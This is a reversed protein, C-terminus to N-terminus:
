MNKQFFPSAIGKEHFVEIAIHQQSIGPALKFLRKIKGNEICTKQTQQNQAVSVNYNIYLGNTERELNTMSPFHTAIISMCTPYRALAHAVKLGLQAGEEPSTGSFIEDFIAFSFQKKQALQDVKDGYEFVRRAEAQFRSEQDVQSDAVNLYTVINDFPTFTMSHAPAIGLTQAMILSLAISKLITSKGGSNPGTVILNPCHYETGLQISNTVVSSPNIFPSWFDDLMIVPTEHQDLYIPLCYGAPQNRSETVLKAATMYAEIEGLGVMAPELLNKVKELLRYACLANGYNYFYTTGSHLYKKNFTKTQLTSFFTALDKNTRPLENLLQDIEKLFVLNNKLEPIAQVEQLVTRMSDIYAAIRILRKRIFDKILLDYYVWKMRNKLCLISMTGTVLAAPAKVARLTTLSLYAFGANESPLIRDVYQTLVQPPKFFYSYTLLGFAIFACASTASLGHRFFSQSQDMLSKCQLATSNRNLRNGVWTYGFYECELRQMIFETDWLGTFVAEQEGIDRFLVDLKQLLEPSQALKNIIAQRARLEQINTTPRALLGYMYAKGLETHTRGETLQAGLYATSKQLTGSVINLDSWAQQDIIPNMKQQQNAEAQSLIKFARQRQKYAPPNTVPRTVFNVQAVVDEGVCSSNEEEVHPLTAVNLKAIKQLVTQEPQKIPEQIKQEACFMPIASLLNLSFVLGILLKKIAM